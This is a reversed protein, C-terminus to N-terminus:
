QERAGRNGNLSQTRITNLEDVSFVGAQYLNHYEESVSQKFIMIDDSNISVAVGHDVIKRIPHVAISEVRCLCVNSTPCINLRVQNRRLWSLVEDSHVASIGHQVEDLELVEVSRRVFDANRYEGAHAKLKMGKNKAQRYFATFEEPEGFKENGYLDISQFYGTDICPEVWPGLVEVSLERNLGIEPRFDVEPATRQHVESLFQVLGRAGDEYLQYVQADISMELETVGDGHAQQLAAQITYEFGKKSYIIFHLHDKLYQVFEEFTDMRAPAEPISQGLWKELLHLRSGLGAHNHLDSKPVQQLLNIDDEELGRVFSENEM